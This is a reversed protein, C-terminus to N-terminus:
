IWSRPMILMMDEGVSNYFYIYINLYIFLSISIASIYLCAESPGSSSLECLYRGNTSSLIFKLIHTIGVEAVKMRRYKRFATTHYNRGPSQQMLKSKLIKGMLDGNNLAVTSSRLISLLGTGDAQRLQTHVMCPLASQNLVCFPDCGKRDLSIIRLIKIGRAIQEIDKEVM